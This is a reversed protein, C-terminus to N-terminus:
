RKSVPTTEYFLQVLILITRSPFNNSCNPHARNKCSKTIERALRRGTQVFFFDLFNMFVTFITCLRNMGM